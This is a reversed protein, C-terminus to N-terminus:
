YAHHAKNVHTFRLAQPDYLFCNFSKRKKKIQKIISFKREEVM